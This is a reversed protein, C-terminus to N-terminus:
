NGVREKLEELFSEVVMYHGLSAQNTAGAARLMLFRQDDQTIDYETRAANYSSGVPLSFLSRRETVNFAAETSVTEAILENSVNKYFLESGNHSWLPERGGDTSVQSKADDVNPFPRVYIESVGSENSMYALYRGDPSVVPNLEVFDSGILLTPLSDVGPRMPLIDNTM